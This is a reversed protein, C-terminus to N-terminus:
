VNSHESSEVTSIDKRKMIIQNHSAFNNNELSLKCYSKM